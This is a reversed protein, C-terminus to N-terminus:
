NGAARSRGRGRLYWYALGGIFGGFLAAAAYGFAAVGWGIDRDRLRYVDALIAGTILINLPAVVLLIITVKPGAALATGFVFLQLAITGFVVYRLRSDPAYGSIDAPRWDDALRVGILIAGAVGSAAMMAGVAGGIWGAITVAGAPPLVATGIGIALTFGVHHWRIGIQGMRTTADQTSMNGSM